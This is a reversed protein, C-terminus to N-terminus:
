TKTSDVIMIKGEGIYVIDMQNAKDALEVQTTVDATNADVIAIGSIARVVM